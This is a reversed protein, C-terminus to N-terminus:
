LTLLLLAVVASVLCMAFGALMVLATRFSPTTSDLTKSDFGLVYHMINDFGNRKKNKM